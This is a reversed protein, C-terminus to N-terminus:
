CISSQFFNLFVTLFVLHLNKSLLILLIVFLFHSVQSNIFQTLFHFSGAMSAIWNLPWGQISSSLRYFMNYPNKLEAWFQWILGLRRFLIDLLFIHGHAEKELSSSLCVILLYLLEEAEPGSLSKHLYILIIMLFWLQEDLIMSMALAQILRPTHGEWKLVDVVTIIGLDFLDAYSEGLAKQGMTRRFVNPLNILFIIPLYRWNWKSNM